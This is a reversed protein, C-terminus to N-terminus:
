GIQPEFGPPITPSVAPQAPRILPSIATTDGGSETVRVKEVINGVMDRSVRTDQSKEKHKSLTPLAKIDLFGNYSYRM